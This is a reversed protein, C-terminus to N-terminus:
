RWKAQWKGTFNPLIDWMEWMAHYLHSRMSM